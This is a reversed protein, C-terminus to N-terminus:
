SPDSAEMRVLSPLSSSWTTSHAVNREKKGKVIERNMEEYVRMSQNSVDNYM